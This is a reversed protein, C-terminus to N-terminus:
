FIIRKKQIKWNILYLNKFYERFSGQIENVNTTVDGKEAKIRNIQTKERKRKTTKALPQSTKNRRLFCNKMGNM